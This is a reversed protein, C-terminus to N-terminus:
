RTPIERGDDRTVTTTITTTYPISPLSAFRRSHLELVISLTSDEQHPDGMDPIFCIRTDFIRPQVAFRPGSPYFKTLDPLAIWPNHEPPQSSPM